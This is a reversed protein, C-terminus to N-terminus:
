MAPNFNLQKAINHNKHDEKNVGFECFFATGWLSIRMAEVYYFIIPLSDM